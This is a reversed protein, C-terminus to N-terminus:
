AKNVKKTLHCASATVKSSMTKEEQIVDNENCSSKIVLRELSYSLTLYSFIFPGPFNVYGNEASRRLIEAGRWAETPLALLRPLPFCFDASTSHFVTM